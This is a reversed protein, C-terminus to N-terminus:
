TYLFITNTNFLLHQSKWSFTRTTTWLVSFHSLCTQRAIHINFNHPVLGLVFVVLSTLKTFNEFIQITLLFSHVSLYKSFIQFDVEKKILLREGFAKLNIYFFNPSHATNLPMFVFNPNVTCLVM